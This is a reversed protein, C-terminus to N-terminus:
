SASLTVPPIKERQTSQKKGPKAAQIYLVHGCPMKNAFITVKNDKWKGLLAQFIDALAAHVATMRLAGTMDKESTRNPKTVNTM